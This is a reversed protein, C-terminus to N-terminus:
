FIYAMLQQTNAQKCMSWNNSSAYCIICKNEVYTIHLQMKYETHTDKWLCQCIVADLKNDKPLSKM